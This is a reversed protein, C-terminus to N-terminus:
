WCALVMSSSTFRRNSGRAIKGYNAGPNRSQKPMIAAISISACSNLLRLTNRAGDDLRLLADVQRLRMGDGQEPNALFCQIIDQFMSMCLM